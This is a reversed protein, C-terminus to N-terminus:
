LFLFNDLIALSRPMLNLHWISVSEHFAHTVCFYFWCNRENSKMGKRWVNALGNKKRDLRWAQRCRIGNPSVANFRGSSQLSRNICIFSNWALALLFFFFCHLKRSQFCIFLFHAWLCGNCLFLVAHFRFWSFTHVVRELLSWKSFWNYKTRAVVLGGRRLTHVYRSFVLLYFFGNNESFKTKGRIKKERENWSFLPWILHKINIANKTNMFCHNLAALFHIHWIQANHTFKIANAGSMWERRQPTATQKKYKKKERWNRGSEPYIRVRTHM